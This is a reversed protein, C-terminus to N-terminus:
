GVGRRHQAQRERDLWDRTYDRVREDAIAKGVAEYETLFKQRAAQEAEHQQELRTAAADNAAAVSLFWADDPM